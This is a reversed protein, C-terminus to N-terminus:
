ALQARGELRDRTRERGDWVGQEEYFRYSHLLRISIGIGIAPIASVTIAIATLVAASQTENPVFGALQLAWGLLFAGLAAGSKDILGYLTAYVGQRQRGSERADYDAIDGLLAYATCYGAGSGIGAFLALALFGYIGTMVALPYSLLVLLWIYKGALWSRRVGIRKVSQLWGWTALMQSAMFVIFVHMTMDPRDFVYKTVYPIAFGLSTFALTEALQIAIFHRHYRNAIVERLMMWPPREESRHPKPLEKMLYSAALVTAAWITSGILLMPWLVTKPDGANMAYQMALIGLISGVFLPIAFVTQLMTRRRANTAVELGLAVVSVSRMTQGTEWLIVFLILWLVLGLGGLGEPPFFLGFVSFIGLAGWRFIPLRRPERRRDSLWGFLPDTVGDFVAKIAMITGVAAPAVLLVDTSHIAFYRAVIGAVVGGPLLTLIGWFYRRFARDEDHIITAM